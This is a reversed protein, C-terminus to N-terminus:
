RRRCFTRLLRSTIQSVSWKTELSPVGVVDTNFSYVSDAISFQLYDNVPNTADYTMTFNLMSPVGSAYTESVFRGSVFYQVTVTSFGDFTGTITEAQDSTSLAIALADVLGLRM